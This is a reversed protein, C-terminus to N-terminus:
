TSEHGKQHPGDDEKKTGPWLRRLKWLRSVNPESVHAIEAAIRMEIETGAGARSWVELHAGVKQARERM